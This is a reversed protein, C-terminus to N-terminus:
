TKQCDLCNRDKLANDPSNENRIAPESNKFETEKKQWEIVEQQILTCICIM